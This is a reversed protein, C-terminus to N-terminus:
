IVGLSKCHDTIKAYDGVGSAIHKKIDRSPRGELESIYNENKQICDIFVEVEEKNKSIKINNVNLIMAELYKLREELYKIREERTNKQSKKLTRRKFDEVKKLNEKDMRKIESQFWETMKKLNFKFWCVYFIFKFVNYLFKM